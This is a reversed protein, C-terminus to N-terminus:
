HDSYTGDAQGKQQNDVAEASITPLFINFRTGTVPGSSKSSLTIAGQLQKVISHTVSLGLGSGQPAKTTFFPDFVKAQIEPSMGCGTDSVAICVDNHHGEPVSTQTAAASLEIRIEGHDAMADSANLCLNLIIQQIQGADAFVFPHGLTSEFYFDIKKALSPKLLLIAEEIERAVNQPSPQVPRQRAFALMRQILGQARQCAINIQSLYGQGPSDQALEDGTLEAYGGISGLLINFDHAIGAALVGLAALRATQEVERAHAAQHQAQLHERFSMGHAMTLEMLPLTLLAAVEGIQLAPYRAGLSLLSKHHLAIVEDPSIEQALLSRGMEFANSLAQEKILPDTETVLQEVIQTYCAVFGETLQNM